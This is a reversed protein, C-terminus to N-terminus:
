EPICLCSVCSLKLHSHPSSFAYVYSFKPSCAMLCRASVLYDKVIKQCLKPEGCGVFEVADVLFRSGNLLPHPNVHWGCSMVYPWLNDTAAWAARWISKTSWVSHADVAQIYICSLVAV